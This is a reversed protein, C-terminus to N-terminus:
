RRTACAEKRRALVYRLKRLVAATMERETAALPAVISVEVLTTPDLASVKVSGGITRFEVIVQAGGSTSRANTDGAM